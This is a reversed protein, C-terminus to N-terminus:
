ADEQLNHSNSMAFWYTRSKPTLYEDVAQRLAQYALELLVPHTGVDDLSFELLPEGESDTFAGSVNSM